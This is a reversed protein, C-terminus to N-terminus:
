LRYLLIIVFIILIALGIWQPANKGEDIQIGEEEALEDRAALLIDKVKEFVQDNKVLYDLAGENVCEMATEVNEQSSLFVVPLDPDLSRMKKLIQLGDWAYEFEADLRYDLLVVDPQLSLEHLCAEGNHFTHLQVDPIENMLYQEMAKCFVPDDDVIFVRIQNITEM